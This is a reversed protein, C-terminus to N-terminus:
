TVLGSGPFGGFPLENNAGFRAKCSSLRKGCADKNAFTTPTDDALYYNTGTYGCEAGRYKFPCINQVIQRRPLLVGNMDYSTTLEFEVISRDERSKRDIYYIDDPLYATADATPNVSGPFNVADLYRVMTRRRTVKAGVCDNLSLVMATITGNVNGLSMKPRPVQGNSSFDFGSAQVPWPMYTKTQWVVSQQLGNTGGHFYYFTDGLATMDIEFLEVLASPSLKQIEAAISPNITM